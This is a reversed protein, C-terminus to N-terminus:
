EILVEVRDGSATWDYTYLGFPFVFLFAIHVTTLSTSWLALMAIPFNVFFFSFMFSVIYTAM